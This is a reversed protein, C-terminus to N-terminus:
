EFDQEAKADDGKVLLALGRNLYSYPLSSDLELARSFDAIAKDFNEKMMWVYGREEYAKPIQSNLKIARDFNELAADYQHKDTYVRGRNYYTQPIKPDLEIARDLDDLAGDLDGKEYRLNARNNYASALNKDLSLARETDALAGTSDGIASKAASSAAFEKWNTSHTARKTSGLRSSLEIARTFDDIAVDLEGKDLKLAGQKYLDIARSPTQAITVAGFCSLLTTFFLTTLWSRIEIEKNVSQKHNESLSHSEKAWRPPGFM